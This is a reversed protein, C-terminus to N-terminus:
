GQLFQGMKGIIEGAWSRLQHIMKFTELISEKKKEEEQDDCEQGEVRSFLESEEDIDELSPAIRGFTFPTKRMENFRKPPSFYAWPTASPIYGLLLDLHSPQISINQIYTAAAVSPAEELHFQKKTEAVLQTRIAYLDHISQDLQDITTM